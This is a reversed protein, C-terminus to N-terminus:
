IEIRKEPAIYEYKLYDFIDKETTFVHDVKKKTDTYKLSYENMTLGQSLAEARMEQNFESSGTFYLIAFPYEEPRTYMIDIRRPFSKYKGMGMYKKSGRALQAVLYKEQTLIDIFNDYIKKSSAKILLDIDGSDKNKRRYSGAITLEADPDIKKLVSKLYKEHGQIEKYPIRKQMDEFYQLGRKQVDNLYQDLEEDSLNRLDQITRFGAKVLKGAHQPGVGHINMFLKKADMEKRRDDSMNKIKEYAACTGTEIIEQIKEKTNQGIGQIKSLDMLDADQTLPALSKNIKVYNRLRFVDNRYRCDDELEKFIKKVEKIKTTGTAKKIIVDTRKRIYRGFRPVGKGTYGSCGFSIITGIPHTKKYNNRIDDDMGSITFIHEPNEDIVMHTDHNILLKCVFAGLKGKYKGKGESYDIVIAERDFVPKYKLLYSSRGKEYPCLPHKIMIGEGGKKLISQYYTEMTKISDIKIQETYQIPCTLNSYPSTIQKTKVLHNWRNETFSVIDFLRELRKVFTNAGNVIDYVHFQIDIWEEDIPVKKRVVGMMEFNDRGAWLEGDLIDKKLFKPPPMADIFWQPANFPKGTRSLFTGKGNIYQFTSRYGDKKESMFWDEPPKNYKTKDKKLLIGEQYEKALM